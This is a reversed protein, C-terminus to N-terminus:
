FFASWKFVISWIVANLLLGIIFLTWQNKKDEWCAVIIALGIPIGIFAFFPIPHFSKLCFIGICATLFLSLLLESLFSLEMKIHTSM